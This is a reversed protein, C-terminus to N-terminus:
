KELLYLYETVHINRAGQEALTSLNRCGRFATYRNEFVRLRGLPRLMEQMEEVSIFGESNFSILVFKAKVEAALAALACPADQKRNYVSRKWNDPIGSVKSVREPRRNELIV